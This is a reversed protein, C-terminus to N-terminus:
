AAPAYLEVNLGANMKSVGGTMKAHDGGSAFDLSKAARIPDEKQTGAPSALRLERKSKALEETKGQNVEIGVAPAGAPDGQGVAVPPRDNDLQRPRRLPDHVPRVLAREIEANGGGIRHDHEFHPAQPAQQAEEVPPEEISPAPTGVSRCALPDVAREQAIQPAVRHLRARQHERLKALMGLALSDNHNVSTALHASQHFVDPAQLGAHSPTSAAPPSVRRWGLRPCAPFARPETRVPANAPM